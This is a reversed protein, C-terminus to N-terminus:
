VETDTVRFYKPARKRSTMHWGACLPCLYVALGDKWGLKQLRSQTAARAAFEDSFRQKKACNFTALKVPPASM